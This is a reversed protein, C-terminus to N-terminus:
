LRRLSVGDGRAVAAAREVRYAELLLAHRAVSYSWAGAIGRQREIRLARELLRLLKLRGEVATAHREIDILPILRPLDRSRQYRSREPIKARVSSKHAALTRKSRERAAPGINTFKGDDQM